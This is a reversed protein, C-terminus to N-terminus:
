NKPFEGLEILDQNNPDIGRFATEEKGSVQAKNLALEESNKQVEQIQPSLKELLKSFFYQDTNKSLQYLIFWDGINCRDLFFRVGAQDKTSQSIHSLILQNRLAPVVILVADFIIQVTVIPLLFIYWFWLVLYIKQNVINQGLICLGHIDLKDATLGFLNLYCNVRTPFANCMVNFSDDGNVLENWVESGYNKFNGNLFDDTVVFNIVVVIM